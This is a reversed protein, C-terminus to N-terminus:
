RAYSCRHSGKCSSSLRSLSQLPELFSDIVGFHVLCAAGLHSPISHQESGRRQVSGGPIPVHVTYWEWHESPWISPIDQQAIAIQRM